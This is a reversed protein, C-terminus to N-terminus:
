STRAGHQTSGHPACSLTIVVPTSLPKKGPLNQRAMAAAALYSVAVHNILDAAKEDEEAKDVNTYAACNVIVDIREKQM